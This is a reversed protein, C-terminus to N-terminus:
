HIASGDAPASMYLAWDDPLPQLNSMTYAQRNTDYSEYWGNPVLYVQDTSPDYVREVGYIADTFKEAMIDSAQSRSQWGDFIMDSTESLTRGQEAVAGWLQHQQQVCWDVYGQTVTFSDLSAVLAAEINKFENKPATVGLIMSGYGTGGGPAGTFPWSVWATGLFQGEGVTGEHLFVARLLATDAGPLMPALPSNSVVTLGTLKPFEPMFAAAAQMDAITPWHVLFNETTLPDVAPADLWTIFNYGGSNVYNLDIQRQAEKLYVPGILGFYFIQRLPVAPDRILIGLTGCVGGIHVDWGKPKRISFFTPGVDFLEMELSQIPTSTQTPTPRVPTKTPTGGLGCGALANNVGAILEDVTVRGDSNYDFSPCGGVALAGLAVNVGTILEEVTVKGDGGCDGVCTVAEAQSGRTSALGVFLSVGVMMLVFSVSQPKM